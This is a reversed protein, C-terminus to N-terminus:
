HLKGNKKRPHFDGEVANLFMADGALYWIDSDSAVFENLWGGINAALSIRKDDESYICVSMALNPSHVKREPSPELVLQNDIPSIAVVTSKHGGVM